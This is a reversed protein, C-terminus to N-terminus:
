RLKAVLKSFEERDFGRLTTTKIFGSSSVSFAVAAAAEDNPLEATFLGDYQGMTWLISKLKGGLKEITAATAEARRPSDKFERIGQDTFKFLFVYVGM